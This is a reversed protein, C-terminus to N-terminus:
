KLFMGMATLHSIADLLLRCSLMHYTQAMVVGPEFRLSVSFEQGFHWKQKM